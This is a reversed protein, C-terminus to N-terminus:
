SCPELAGPFLPAKRGFRGGRAHFGCLGGDAPFVADAVCLPPITESVAFLGVYMSGHSGRIFGSDLLAQWVYWAHSMSELPLALDKAVLEEVGIEFYEGM